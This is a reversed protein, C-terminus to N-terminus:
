VDALGVLRVLYRHLQYTLMLETITMIGALIGHQRLQLVSDIRRFWKPFTALILVNLLWFTGILSLIIATPLLYQLLKIQSNVLVYILLYIAIFKIIDMPNDLMRKDSPNKFLYQNFVPILVLSGAFGIGLGTALRISNTTTRILMYSTLGDLAFLLFAIAGPILVYAKPFSSEKRLRTLHILYVCSIFFGLYM